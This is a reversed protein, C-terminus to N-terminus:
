CLRQGQIVVGWSNDDLSIYGFGKGQIVVSWSVDDWSILGEDSAGRSTAQGDTWADTWTDTRYM